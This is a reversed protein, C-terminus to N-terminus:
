DWCEDRPSNKGARKYAHKAINRKDEEYFLKSKELKEKLQNSSIKGRSFEGYIMQNRFEFQNTYSELLDRKINEITRSEKVM